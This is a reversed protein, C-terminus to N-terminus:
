NRIIDSLCGTHGDLALDIHEIFTKQDFYFIFKQFIADTIRLFLSLCNQLSVPSSESLPDPFTRNEIHIPIEQYRLPFLAILYLYRVPFKVHVIQCCQRIQILSHLLSLDDTFSMMDNNIFGLVKPHHCICNKIKADFVAGIRHHPIYGLINM